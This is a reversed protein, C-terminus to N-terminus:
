EITGSISSETGSLQRPYYMSAVYGCGYTSVTLKDIVERDKLFEEIMSLIWPFRREPLLWMSDLRHIDNGIYLAPFASKMTQYVVDLNTRPTYLFTEATILDKSAPSDVVEYGLSSLFARDVDNFQPDQFYVHEIHHHKKLMQIWFEFAVLQAIPSLDFNKADSVNTPNSNRFIEAMSGLGLCICNSIPFASQKQITRAALSIAEKRAPSGEHYRTQASHHMRLIDFTVHEVLPAQYSSPFSPLNNYNVPVERYSRPPLAQDGDIRSTTSLSSGM